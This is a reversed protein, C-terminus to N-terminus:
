KSLDCSTEYTDMDDQEKITAENCAAVAQTKNAGEIKINNINSFPHAEEVGDFNSDYYNVGSSTCTCSYDKKCSVLALSVLALALISKKM